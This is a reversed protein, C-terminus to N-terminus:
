KQTSFDKRKGFWFNRAHFTSLIFSVVRDSTNEIAYDAPIRKQETRSYIYNIGSLINTPEIGTMIVTGAELAEPREMSDRITLANFGLIASEESISGSDSIVIQSNIQLKCYDHFGLPDVLRIHPSIEIQSDDLKSRLRPHTSIIIPVGYEASVVELSGFITRLRRLDDINEQRHLSVLIFKGPILGLEELVQSKQINAKNLDIVERLPTGIVISNRPHIGESLLNQRAFTTYCLNFDAIHDVVKRNNEEPVNIDFSRNGAELHYIPIGHKKAIIASLSSNTDGLIVVADTPHNQFEMEIYPFLEGLFTGTSNSSNAMIADPPRLALESFFNVGTRPDKNQSTFVIRHIFHKDFHKVLESMRVIEPRTGLITTVRIKNM